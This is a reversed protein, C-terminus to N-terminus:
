TGCHRRRPSPSRSCNNVRADSRIVTLTDIRKWGCLTFVIASTRSAFHHHYPAGGWGLSSGHVDLTIQLLPEVGHEVLERTGAVADPAVMVLRSFANSRITVANEFTLRASLVIM